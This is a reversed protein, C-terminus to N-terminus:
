AAMSLHVPPWSIHMNAIRVRSCKTPTVSTAPSTPRVNTYVCLLTTYLHVVGTQTGQGGHDGHGGCRHLMVVTTEIVVTTAGCRHLMVVTTEMVVVGTYCSWQPRWSWWVQTPHGGHDGHGSHNGHDGCRHLLTTVMALPRWCPMINALIPYVPLPCAGSGPGEQTYVLYGPVGVGPVGGTLPPPPPTRIFSYM